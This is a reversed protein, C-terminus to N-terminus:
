STVVSTESCVRNIEDRAGRKQAEQVRVRPGNDLHSLEQRVTMVSLMLHNLRQPKRTRSGFFERSEEKAPRGIVSVTLITKLDHESLLLNSLHNAHAALDYRAQQGSKNSRASFVHCMEVPPTNSM